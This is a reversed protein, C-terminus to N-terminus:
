HRHDGDTAVNKIILQNKKVTIEVPDGVRFGAKQLWVGSVNLWPVVRSNNSRFFYRTLPRYKPYIRIRRLSKKAM